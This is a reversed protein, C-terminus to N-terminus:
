PMSAHWWQDVVKDDIGYPARGRLTRVPIARPAPIAQCAAEHLELLRLELSSSRFRHAAARQAYDASRGCAQLRVTRPGVSNVAKELVDLDDIVRGELVYHDAFITITIEPKAARVDAMVLSPQFAAALTATTAITLLSRTRVSSMAINRSQGPISFDRRADRTACM